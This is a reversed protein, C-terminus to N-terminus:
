RRSVGADRLMTPDILQLITVVEQNPLKYSQELIEYRDAEARDFWADAGIRRPFAEENGSGFLMDFAYSEHDLEDKPFWRSPVSPSPKFWCRGRVGHCVIIMPYRDTEAIKLATATLSADFADAIERLSKLNPRSIGRLLPELLYRPLLMDSAYDDAVREPDTALRRNNGIDDSRCILCKGRHHHWHGLEHAISFRQRRPAVRSDVSIIAKDDKGVIRAECSHLERFKVRAGLEWAIAEVDIEDPRDVGLRQLIREPLTLRRSM